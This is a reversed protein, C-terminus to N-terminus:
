YIFGKSGQAHCGRKSDFTDSDLNPDVSDVKERAPPCGTFNCRLQFSVAQLDERRLASVFYFLGYFVWMTKFKLVGCADKFVLSVFTVEVVLSPNESNYNKSANEFSEYVM